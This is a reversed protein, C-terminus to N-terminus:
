QQNLYRDKLEVYYNAGYRIREIEDDTLKRIRKVPSGMWLYGAELVKGPPVLSGAALLVHSEIEAGDMIMSGMGILCHNHITCGHLIVRHGVTVEDGVITMHGNPNYKGAHTVHIISGDQISTRRGIRISHIDGRIVAMPWISSHEGIEVGGIVMSTADVYATAAIKPTYQEFKRIAM